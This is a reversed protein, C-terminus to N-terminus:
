PSRSVPQRSHLRQRPFRRANITSSDTSSKSASRPNSILPRGLTGPAAQVLVGYFSPMDMVRHDPGIYNQILGHAIQKADELTV